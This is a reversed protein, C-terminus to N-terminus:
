STPITEMTAPPENTEPQEPTEPSETTEPPENTEPPETTPQEEEETAEEFPQYLTIAQGSSNAAVDRCKREDESACSARGSLLLSTTEGDRATAHVALSCSEQASTFAFPEACAEGGGCGSGDSTFVGTPDFAFDTVVVSVGDPVPDSGLWAAVVCQDDQTEDVDGALGVPLGPLPVAVDDDGSRPTEPDDGELTPQGPDEMTEQTDGAQPGNDTSSDDAQQEGCAALSLFMVVAVVIRNKNVNM